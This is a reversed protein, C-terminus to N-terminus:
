VFYAVLFLLYINIKLSKVNKKPLFCTHKQNQSLNAYVVTVVSNWKKSPSGSILNQYSSNLRGFRSMGGKVCLIAWKIRRASVLLIWFSTHLFASSKNQDFIPLWKRKTTLSIIILLQIYFLANSALNSQLTRTQKKKNLGKEICIYM